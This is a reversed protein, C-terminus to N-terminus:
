IRYIHNDDHIIGINSLAQTIQYVHKMSRNNRIFHMNPSISNLSVKSTKHYRKLLLRPVCGLDEEHNHNSKKNPM